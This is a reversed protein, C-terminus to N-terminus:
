SPLLMDVWCETWSPITGNEEINQWGEHVIGTAYLIGVEAMASHMAILDKHNVRYYAGLPRKLADSTRAENLRENKKKNIYPWCDDGCIGHKHWGKM